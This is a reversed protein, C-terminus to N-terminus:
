SGRKSGDSYNLASDVNVEPVEGTYALEAPSFVFECGAWVNLGRGGTRM